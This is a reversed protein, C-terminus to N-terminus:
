FTYQKKSQLFIRKRDNVPVKSWFTSHINVYKDGYKKNFFLTKKAQRTEAIHLKYLVAIYTVKTNHKKRKNLFLFCPLLPVNQKRNARHKIEM